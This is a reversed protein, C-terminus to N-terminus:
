DAGRRRTLGVRSVQALAHDLHHTVRVRRVPREVLRVRRAADPRAHEVLAERRTARAEAHREPPLARVPERRRADLRRIAVAPAALVPKRAGGLLMTGHALGDADEILRRERLEAEFLDSSRRTPFSHLLRLRSLP